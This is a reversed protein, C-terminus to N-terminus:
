RRAEMRSDRLIEALDFRIVGPGIQYCALIGSRALRYITSQSCHLRAAAERATVLTVRSADVAGTETM